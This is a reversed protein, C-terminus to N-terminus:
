KLFLAIITSRLLYPKLLILVKKIDVKTPFESFVSKIPKLCKSKVGKRRQVIQSCSEMTEIRPM